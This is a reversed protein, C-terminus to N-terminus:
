WHSVTKLGGDPRRQSFKVTFRAESKVALPDWAASHEVPLLDWIVRHNGDLSLIDTILPKWISSCARAEHLKAGMKLKYIPILDMPRIMGFLGSM